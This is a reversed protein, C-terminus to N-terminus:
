QSQWKSLQFCVLRYAAPSKGKERRFVRSFYAPDNFGVAFAIETVTMDSHELLECARAVRFGNVYDWLPMGAQRHFVRSVYAPSVGLAGAIQERTFPTAFNNGVYERIKTVLSDLLRENHVGRVGHELQAQPGGNSGNSCLSAGALRVLFTTGRGPESEIELEGGHREV